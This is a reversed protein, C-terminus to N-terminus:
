FTIVLSTTLNTDVKEKATEFTGIVLGSPAQLKLLELAPLNRFLVRVGAKLAMRSNIAVGVANLWDTRIDNSTEFSGDATLESEVVTATAPKGKLGYFLRYGAFTNRGELALDENTYNLGYATRFTLTDTNKWLTGLGAALVLQSNINSPEDRVSDFNTFWDLRTTIQRQYRLKSFLRDSDVANPPTIIDVGSGTDLAYRDGDRSQARLWGAEWGFESRPWRYGYLNRFGFTTSDANGSAVVLSLETNNSPGLKKEAAAPPPAAQAWATAGSGAACACLAFLVFLSRRRM